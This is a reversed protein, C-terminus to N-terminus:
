EAAGAGAKAEADAGALAHAVLFGRVKRELIDDRLQSTMGKEEYFAKVSKVDVQNQAALGQYARNLDANTVRISEQAAVKRVLFFHRLNKKTEEAIPEREELAKQQAAEEDLGGQQQHGEAQRKVRAEVEDDVLRSPLDFPTMDSLKELMEYALRDQERSENQAEIQGKVLERLQEVSELRLDEVAEEETAPRPKVVQKVQLQAQGKEGIWSEVSFGEKFEVEVERQEGAKVGAVAADFAEPDAGYLPAGTGLRVGEITPGAEGERSFSVDCVMLHQNDLSQGEVEDFRAHERCLGEMAAQIQEDKAQTDEKAVHVDEWAPLKMEPATEAEFEFQLPQDEQIEYATADFELVRLLNLGEQQLADRIVSEFLSDRADELLSDGFYKRLVSAPAKGPRFGPIKVQRAAARYVKDMEQRIRAPEVTVALKYHCSGLESKEVQLSQM